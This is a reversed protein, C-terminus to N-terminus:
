NWLSELYTKFDSQNLNRVLVRPIERINTDNKAIGFQNLFVADIGENEFVEKLDERCDLSGGFPYSFPLHRSTTHNRIERTSTCIEKQATTFDIKGLSYHNQTHAGLTILPSSELKKLEESNLSRYNKRPKQNSGFQKFIAMRDHVNLTKLSEQLNLYRDLVEDRVDSLANWTLYKEKNSLLLNELMDWWFENETGINGTCAFITAPIQYKQLLPLAESFNDCYGDDFTLCISRNTLTKTIIREKLTQTSILEYNEKLFILHQEFNAPYVSLLQSDITPKFVRHYLLVACGNLTKSSSFTRKLFQKFARPLLFV